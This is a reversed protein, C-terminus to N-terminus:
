TVQAMPRKFAFVYRIIEQWILVISQLVSTQELSIWGGNYYTDTSTSSTVAMHKYAAQHTKALFQVLDEGQCCSSVDFYFTLVIHENIVNFGYVHTFTFLWFASIRIM